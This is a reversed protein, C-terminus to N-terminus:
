GELIDVIKKKGHHGKIIQIRSKPLSFFKSLADIVAENARGERAPASVSLRYSGDPLKEVKEKRSNPKVLLDIRM